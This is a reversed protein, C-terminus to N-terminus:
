GGSGSGGDRDAPDTSRVSSPVDEGRNRGITLVYALAGFLGVGGLGVLLWVWSRTVTRPKAAVSPSGPESPSAADSAGGTGSPGPAAAAAATFRLQGDVRHGDAAVVRYVVRYGGAGGPLPVTVTAGRVTPAGTDAPAGDVTVAVRSLDPNVESSFTLVVQAPATDLAAGDAPDSSVLEAHAYAPAGGLLVGGLLVPVVVLSWWRM